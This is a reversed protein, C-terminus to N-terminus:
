IICMNQMAYCTSTLLILKHKPFTENTMCAVFRAHLEFNYNGKEVYSISIYVNHQCILFFHGCKVIGHRSHKWVDYKVTMRNYTTVYMVYTMVMSVYMKLLGETVM